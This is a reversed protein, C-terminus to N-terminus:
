SNPMKKTEGGRERETKRDMNVFDFNAEIRVTHTAKRDRSNLETKLSENLVSTTLLM